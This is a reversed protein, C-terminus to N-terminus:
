SLNRALDELPFRQEEWIVVRFSFKTSSEISTRQLKSIARCCDLETFSSNLFDFWNPGSLMFCVTIKLDSLFLWLITDDNDLIPESVSSSKTSTDRTRRSRGQQNLSLRPSVFQYSRVEQRFSSEKDVNLLFIFILKLNM